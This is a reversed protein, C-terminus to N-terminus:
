NVQVIVKCPLITKIVKYVLFNLSKTNFLKTSTVSKIASNPNWGVMEGAGEWARGGM